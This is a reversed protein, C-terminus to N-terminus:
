FFHDFFQPGSDALISLQTILLPPVWGVMVSVQRAPSLQWFAHDFPKLPFFACHCAPVEELIKVQFFFVEPQTDASRQHGFFPRCYSVSFVRGGFM